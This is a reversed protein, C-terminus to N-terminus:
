RQHTVRKTIEVTKEGSLSSLRIKMNDLLGDTQFINKNLAQISIFGKEFTHIRWNDHSKKALILADQFDIETLDDPFLRLTFEGQELSVQALHESINKKDLLQDLDAKVEAFTLNEM